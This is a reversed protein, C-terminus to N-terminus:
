GLPSMFVAIWGSYTSAVTTHEHPLVNVVREVLDVKCTSSHLSHWGKKVPFCFSTSEPPRTSRNWRRYPLFAIVELFASFCASESSGASSADV